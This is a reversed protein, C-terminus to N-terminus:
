QIYLEFQDILVARHNFGGGVGAGENCIRGEINSTTLVVTVLSAVLDMGCNTMTIIPLTIRLILLEQNM